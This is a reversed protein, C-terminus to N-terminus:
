SVERVEAGASSETLRLLCAVLIVGLSGVTKRRMTREHGAAPARKSRAKPFPPPSSSPPPPRNHRLTPTLILPLVLLFFQKLKKTAMHLMETLRLPIEPLPLYIERSAYRVVKKPM